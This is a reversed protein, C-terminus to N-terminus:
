RRSPHSGKKRGEYTGTGLSFTHASFHNLNRTEFEYSPNSYAHHTNYYSKNVGQHLSPPMAFSDAYPRFPPLRTMNPNYDMDHHSPFQYPTNVRHVEMPSRYFNSAGVKSPYSLRQHRSSESARSNISAKGIPFGKQSNHDNAKAHGIVTSRRGHEHVAKRKESKTRGRM